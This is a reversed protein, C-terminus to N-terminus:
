EKCCLRCNKVWIANILNCSFFNIVGLGSLKPLTKTWEPRLQFRFNYPNKLKIRGQKNALVIIAQSLIQLTLKKDFRLYKFLLRELRNNCKKVILWERNLSVALLVPLGAALLSDGFVSILHGAPSRDHLVDHLVGNILLQVARVEREESALPLATSHPLRRGPLSWKYDKDAVITITM